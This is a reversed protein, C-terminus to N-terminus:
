WGAFSDSAPDTENESPGRVDEETQDAAEVQEPRLGARTNLEIRVMALMHQAVLRMGLSILCGTGLAVLFYVLAMFIALGSNVNAVLSYAGVATVVGVASAGIIELVAMTDLTSAMRHIAQPDYRSMLGGIAHASGAARGQTQRMAQASIGRWQAGLQTADSEQTEEVPQAVQARARWGVADLM